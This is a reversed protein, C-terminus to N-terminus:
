LRPDEDGDDVALVLARQHGAGRRLVLRRDDVPTSDGRDVGRAGPRPVGRSGEGLAAPLLVGHEDHVVPEDVQRPYVDLVEGERVPPVEDRAVAEVARRPRVLVLGEGAADVAGARAVRVAAGLGALGADRPVVVVLARALAVLARRRARVAVLRVDRQRSKGEFGAEHAHVEVGGLDVGADAGDLLGVAAVAVDAGAPAIRGVHGAIGVRM